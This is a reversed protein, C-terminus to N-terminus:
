PQGEVRSRVAGHQFLTELEDGPALATADRVVSGDPRRTISYGRELVALPSIAELTRGLPELRRGRRELAREVGATLRRQLDDLRRAARELRAGPRETALRQAARELASSRRAHALGVAATLRRGAEDVRRRSLALLEEPRALVRARGIRELREVRQALQRALAESLYGEQRELAAELQARDPIVTQAADTPTHARHDAVFDVLTTDTEHGVGTVVPVSAEFVARAVSEENFCWLDELAGGGRCVVIVDVGYADLRRIASVLEQAAVRGQVRSHALVVPYGSWRLSRTRLFDRWADADRSTVVGVRRPLHPLPRKRGFLGEAALRAKLRELDALLAGIGREEVLDVVLSHKGYPAYVDLMGHVVVRMGDELRSRLARPVQTRWIKCDLIAGEDKLTFFVHGSAAPKARSVEGEVAVRGFGKLASDIRQTLQTVSVVAPEAPPAPARRRPPPPPPDDFLSM